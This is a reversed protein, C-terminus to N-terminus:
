KQATSSKKSEQRPLLGYLLLDVIAQERIQLLKKEDACQTKWMTKIVPKTFFYFLNLGLINWITQVPDVSRIKGLKVANSFLQGFRSLNERGIEEFVQHIVRAVIPNGSHMERGLMQPIHPHDYLFQLHVRVIAPIIEIPETFPVTWLNGISTFMERFTERIISEFLDDKSRFYYYIMAKNAGAREAIEHMRAGDYGREVFVEQASAKIKERTSEQEAM